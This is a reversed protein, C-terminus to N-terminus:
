WYCIYHIYVCWVMSNYEMGNGNWEIEMGNWTWKMVNYWLIADSNHDYYHYGYIICSTWLIWLWTKSTWMASGILPESPKWRRARSSRANPRSCKLSSCDSVSILTESLVVHQKSKHNIIYSSEWIYIYIYYIYLSHSLAESIYTQDNLHQHIQQHQKSISAVTKPYVRGHHFDAPVWQYALTNWLSGLTNQECLNKMQTQTFIPRGLTGSNIWTSEHQNM